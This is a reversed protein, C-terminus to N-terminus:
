YTFGVQFPHVPKTKMKQKKKAASQQYSKMPM